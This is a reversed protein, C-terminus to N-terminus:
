GEGGLAAEHDGMWASCDCKECHDAPWGSWASPRKQKARTEYLAMATVEDTERRDRDRPHHKHHHHSDMAVPRVFASARAVAVRQLSRKV